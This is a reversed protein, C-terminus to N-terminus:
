PSAAAPRLAALVRETEPQLQYPKQRLLDELYPQNPGGQFCISGARDENGTERNSLRRGRHYFLVFKWPAVAGHCFSSSLVISSICRLSTGTSSVQSRVAM